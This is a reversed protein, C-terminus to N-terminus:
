PACRNALPHNMGSPLFRPIEFDQAVRSTPTWYANRGQWWLSDGIQIQESKVNRAVHIACTDRRVTCRCDVYIREADVDCVEIVIGGVMTTSGSASPFGM